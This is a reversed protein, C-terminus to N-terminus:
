PVAAARWARAGAGSASGGEHAAGAGGGGRRPGRQPLPLGAQQPRRRLLEARQAAECVVLTAAHM